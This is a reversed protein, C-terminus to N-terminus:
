NIVPTSAEEEISSTNDQSGRDILWRLAEFKISGLITLLSVEVGQGSTNKIKQGEM